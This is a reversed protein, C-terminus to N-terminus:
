RLLGKDSTSAAQLRAANEKSFLQSTRRLSHYCLLAVAIGGMAGAGTVFAKKFEGGNELM